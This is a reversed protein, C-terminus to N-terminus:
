RCPHHFVVVPLTKIIPIDDVFYRSLRDGRGLRSINRDHIFPYIKIGPRISACVWTIISDQGNHLQHVTINFKNGNYRRLGCLFIQHLAKSSEMVEGPRRKSQLLWQCPSSEPAANVRGARHNRLCRPM